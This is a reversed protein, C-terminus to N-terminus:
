IDSQLSNRTEAFTLYQRGHNEFRVIAGSKRSICDTLRLTAPAVPSVGNLEPATMVDLRGSRAYVRTRTRGGAKTQIAWSGEDLSIVKGDDSTVSSYPQRLCIEDVEPPFLESASLVQGAKASKLRLETQDASVGCGSLALVLILFTAGNQM